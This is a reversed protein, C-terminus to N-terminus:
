FVILILQFSKGGLLENDIKELDDKHLDMADQIIQNKSNEARLNQGGITQM